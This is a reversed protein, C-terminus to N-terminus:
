AAMASGQEKDVAVHQAESFQASWFHLLIQCNPYILAFQQSKNSLSTPLLAAKHVTTLTCFTCMVCVWIGRLYWGQPLM